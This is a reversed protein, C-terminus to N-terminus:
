RKHELDANAGVAPIKLMRHLQDQLEHAAEVGSKKRTLVAHVAEFYARSVV